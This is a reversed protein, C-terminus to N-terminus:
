MDLSYRDSLTALSKEVLRGALLVVLAKFGAKSASVAEAVSGQFFMHPLVVQVGTEKGLALSFLVTKFYKGSSGEWTM